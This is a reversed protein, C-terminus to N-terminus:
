GCAVWGRVGEEAEVVLLLVVLRLVGLVGLVGLMGLVLELVGMRVGMLLVRVCVGVGMRVRM